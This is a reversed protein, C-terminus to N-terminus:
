DETVPFHQLLHDLQELSQYEVVMKGKGSTQHTFNVKMGIKQSLRQSLRMIDPDPLAVTKPTDSAKQYQKVLAETARVTLSKTIIINAIELQQQQSLTLLARAHGMELAKQKLLDQVAPNLELLRLLNSIAARSKGLMDGVEQHTLKFEQILRLIGQAEELVNLDERQINEILAIALAIKDDVQHIIVPVTSLGALQAARWRREGALIEYGQHIARVTLPQIIGQQRISDALTELSLTDFQQRPQYQGPVLQEIPLQVIQGTVSLTHPSASETVGSTPTNAVPQRNLLVELGRGLGKKKM